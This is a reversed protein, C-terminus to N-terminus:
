LIDQFFNVTCLWFCLKHTDFCIHLICLKILSSHLKIEFETEASDFYKKGSFPFHHIFIIVTFVEEACGSIHRHQCPIEGPCAVSLSCAYEWPLFWRKFRLEFTSSVHIQMSDFILIKPFFQQVFSSGRIFIIHISLQINYFCLDSLLLSLIM